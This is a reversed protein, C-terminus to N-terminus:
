TGHWERGRGPGVVPTSRHDSELKWDYLSVTGEAQDVVVLDPVEPHAPGWVEPWWHIPDLWYLAPAEEPEATPMTALAEERHERSRKQAYLVVATGVVIVFLAVITGASV